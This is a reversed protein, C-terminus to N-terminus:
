NTIGYGFSSCGVRPSSGTYPTNTNHLIVKEGKFFGGLIRTFSEGCHKKEIYDRCAYMLRRLGRFVIKLIPEFTKEFTCVLLNLIWIFATLILNPVLYKKQAAIM